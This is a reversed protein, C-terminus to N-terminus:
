ALPPWPQPGPGPPTSTQALRPIARMLKIAALTGHWFLALESWRGTFLPVILEPYIAKLISRRYLGPPYKAILQPHLQLYLLVSPVQRTQTHRANRKRWPHCVAAERIFPFGIGRERLREALDMDEMTAWIYREDFGGLERFLSNEIAFNCSWLNGGNDNIPSTELLSRQPRDAYTRGELVRAAPQAVRAAAFAALWGAEPLCDDDTFAIWEGRALKAGSNRNAAPGRRPGAVWKAWPFKNEVLDRVSTDASDDTVIVEYNEAPYTQAGPALRTLCLALQEPRACAPVVVSFIKSTANM